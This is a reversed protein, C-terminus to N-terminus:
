TCYASGVWEPPIGASNARGTCEPKHGRNKGGSRNVLGLPHDQALHVVTGGLEEIVQDAGTQDAV